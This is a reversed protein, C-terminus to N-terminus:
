VGGVPPTALRVLQRTITGLRSANSGLTASSAITIISEFEATAKGNIFDRTGGFNPFGQYYLDRFYVGVPNDRGNHMRAEHLMDKKLQDYPTESKNFVIRWRDVDTTNLANNLQVWHLIGLYMNERLLNVTQDGVGSIPQFSELLQHVWTIDPRAGKDAPVSFYELTPQITANTLAATAAGTVLIPAQSAVLSYLTQLYEFTLQISSLENQLLILGLESEENVALPITAGFDWTNAGAATGAQYVQGSYSLASPRGSDTMVYGAKGTMVDEVLYAGFGSLNYLDTGSNAAVRVRSLSNWPGMGDLAATGGGLTVTMVGNFHYNIRALYGVRQIAQTERQGAVFTFPNATRRNHRTQSGFATEQLRQTFQM